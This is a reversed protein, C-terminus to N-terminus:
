DVIVEGAVEYPFILELNNEDIFNTETKAIKGGIFIHVSPYKIGLNHNVEWVKAPTEQEYLLENKGLNQTNQRIDKLLGMTTERGAYLEEDTVEVEEVEIGNLNNYIQKLLRIETEIGAYLEKSTVEAM